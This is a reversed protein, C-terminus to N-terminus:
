TQRLAARINRIAARLANRELRLEMTRRGHRYNPHLEGRPAGPSKGGHMRCRGNAIAASRCPFRATRCHARCRPHNALAAPAERVPDATMKQEEMSLLAM